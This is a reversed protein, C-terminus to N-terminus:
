GMVMIRFLLWIAKILPNESETQRGPGGRRPLARRVLPRQRTHDQRRVREFEHGLHLTRAGPRARPERNPPPKLRFDQAGRRGGIQLKM